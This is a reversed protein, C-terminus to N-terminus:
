FTEDLQKQLKWLESYSTTPLKMAKNSEKQLIMDKLTNQINSPNM